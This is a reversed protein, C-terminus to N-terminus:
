AKLKRVYAVAQFIAREVPASCSIKFTMGVGISAGLRNFRIPTSYAGIAGIPREMTNGYTMGGDRSVNLMLQADTEYDDGTVLSTGRQMDVHLADCIYGDPYANLPSTEIKLICPEGDDDEVDFSFEYIKGDTWDLVLNKNFARVAGGIKFTDSEYSTQKFWLGTSIDLMWCWLSCRLFYFDHGQTTVSFGTIEDSKGVNLAREIDRSVENNSVPQAKGGTSAVVKFQDNVWYVVGGVSCVSFRAGCGDGEGQGAGTLPEFLSDTNGTYRIIERTREGFHWFDEGTFFVRVGADAEREAEAFNLANISTSDEDDSWFHRGDSIGYITRGNIYCNSTVGTPLDGDTVESLVGNTCVYNKTDATITIQVYPTHRNVSMTVPKQGLVTGILTAAGGSTVSYLYEGSVVYLLNGTILGGRCPMGSGTDAFAKLRPRTYIIFGTKGGETKEVYCNTLLAGGGQKSKAVDSQPGLPVPVPVSAM